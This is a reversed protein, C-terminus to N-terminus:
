MLFSYESISPSRVASCILILRPEAKGRASSGGGVDPAAVQDAAQGLRDGDAGLLDALRDLLRDVLDDVGDLVGQVAGRGLQGGVDHVLADHEGAAAGQEAPEVLPELV